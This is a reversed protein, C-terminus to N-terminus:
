VIRKILSEQQNLVGNAISAMTNEDATQQNREAALERFRRQDDPSLDYFAEPVPGDPTQIIRGSPKPAAVVPSSDLSALFSSKIEEFSRREPKTQLEELM